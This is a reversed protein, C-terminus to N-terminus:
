QLVAVHRATNICLFGMKRKEGGAVSVWLGQSILFILLNPRLTCFDSPFLFTFAWFKSTVARHLPTSATSLVEHQQIGSFKGLFSVDPPLKVCPNQTSLTM